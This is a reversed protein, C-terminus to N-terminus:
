TPLLGALDALAAKPSWDNGNYTKVLRGERDVVVTRLNHTIQRGGDGERLVALGLRAGFTDIAGREGTAFQWIAADAGVDAAHQTLVAPTDFAPDFSVSLLRVQRRLRADALIGRQLEGFYKDMRPCYDPLPCRTYIFTLVLYAGPHYSALSHTRGDEGLFDMEPLLSGPELIPVAPPGADAQPPAGGVQVRGTKEIASLWAEDDTVVLTGKVLDGKEIGDLLTPEKIVFPMTMAPMFGKVDKHSITVETHDPKVALVVGELPYQRGPPPPPEGGCGDMAMAALAVSVALLRSRLFAPRTM